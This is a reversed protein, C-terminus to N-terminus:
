HGNHMDDAATAAQSSGLTAFVIKLTDSRM